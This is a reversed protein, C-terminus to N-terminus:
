STGDTRHEGTLTLLYDRHLPFQMTILTGPFRRKLKRVYGGDPPRLLDNEKNFAITKGESSKQLRYTGDFLIYTTGSIICMRRPVDGGKPTGLEYFFTLMEVSGQGRDPQAAGRLSSVHEQLAFVTRTVEEDVGGFWKGRQASMIRQLWERGPNDASLNKMTDGISEGFNFITIHFDGYAKGEVEHLYAAVWWDQKPTHDEANGLAESVLDALRKIGSDTLRVSYRSLCKDFHRVLGTTVRSKSDTQPGGQSMGRTLYFVYFGKPLAKNPLVARVIGAADVVQKVEPSRPWNGRINKRQTRRADQVLASAVSQAGLDITECDRQDISVLPHDRISLALEGLAKLAGEPDDFFSFVKPFRVQASRAKQNALGAFQIYPM